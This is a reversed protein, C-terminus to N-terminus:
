YTADHFLSQQEERTGNRNRLRHKLRHGPRHNVVATLLKRLQERSQLAADRADLEARRGRLDTLLARESDSLPAAEATAPMVPQPTPSPAPPKPTAAQSESPPPPSAPGSTGASDAFADHVIAITKMSLLAAMAVITLPLLRPAPIRRKM